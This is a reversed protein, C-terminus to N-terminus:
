RDDPSGDATPRETSRRVYEAIRSVTQFNELVFDSPGTSTGLEDDVFAVLRLVAVSDLRESLLDDDPGVQDGPPLAEERLWTLIRNEVPGPGDEARM